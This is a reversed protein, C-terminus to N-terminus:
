ASVNRIIKKWGKAIHQATEETSVNQCDLWQASKMSRFWTLQRKAYNRSKQKMSDMASDLSRMGKRYEIFESYGMARIAPNETSFGSTLYRDVEEILGSEVMRDTRFNIREYLVDREHRLVVAYSSAYSPQVERQNHLTSFVKGTSYFVELARLIRQRDNSGYREASVPDIERLEDFLTGLGEASERAFLKNRVELDVEGEEMIGYLLGRIYLGTGGCIIPARNRSRIGAIESTAESVFRGLNYQDNPDVHDILHYPVGQLESASPKATGISLHRYVQMSDASVIEGDILQATRVAVETKGSATPGTIVILPMMPGPM